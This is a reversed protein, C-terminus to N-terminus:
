VKSLKKLTDLIMMNTNEGGFYDSNSSKNHRWVPGGPVSGNGTLNRRTESTEGLVPSTVMRSGVDAEKHDCMKPSHIYM